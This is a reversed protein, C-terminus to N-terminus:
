ECQTVHAIDHCYCDVRASHCVASSANILSAVSHSGALSLVCPIPLYCFIRVTLTVNVCPLKLLVVMEKKWLSASLIQGCWCLYNLYYLDCKLSPKSTTAFSQQSGDFIRAVSAEESPLCLVVSAVTIIHKWPNFDGM